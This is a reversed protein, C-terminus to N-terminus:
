KICKNDNRDCTSHFYLLARSHPEIKSMTDAISTFADYVEPTYTHDKNKLGLFGFLSERESWFFFNLSNVADNTYIASHFSLGPFESLLNESSCFLGVINTDKDLQEFHAKTIAESSGPIRLSNGGDSSEGIIMITKKDRQAQQIYEIFETPTNPTKQQITFNLSQLKKALRRGNAAYNRANLPTFNWSICDEDRTPFMNIVVYDQTKKKLFSDLNRSTPLIKEANSLNNAAVLKVINNNTDMNQPIDLGIIFINDLSKDEALPIISDPSSSEKTLLEKIENDKGIFVGGRETRFEKLKELGQEGFEKGVDATLARNLQGGPTDLYFYDQGLNADELQKYFKSFVYGEQFDRNVQLFEATLQKAYSRMIEKKETNTPKYILLTKDKDAKFLNVLQQTIKKDYIIDRSHLSRPLPCFIQASSHSNFYLLFILFHILCTHHKKM